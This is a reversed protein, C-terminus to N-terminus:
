AGGHRFYVVVGFKLMIQTNSNRTIANQLEQEVNNHLGEVNHGSADIM